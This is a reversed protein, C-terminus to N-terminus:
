PSQPLGEPLTVLKDLRRCIEPLDEPPIPLVRTRFEFSRGLGNEAIVWYEFGRAVDGRRRDDPTSEFLEAAEAGSIISFFPYGLDVLYYRDM